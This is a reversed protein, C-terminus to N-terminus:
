GPKEEHARGSSLTWPAGPHAPPRKAPANPRDQPDARKNGRPAVISNTHISLDIAIRPRSNDIDPELGHSSGLGGLGPAIQLKERDTFGLKMGTKAILSSKLVPGRMREQPADEGPIKRAMWLVPDEPGVVLPARTQGIRRILRAQVEIKGMGLPQHCARYRAGTPHTHIDLGQIWFPRQIPDHLPHKTLM